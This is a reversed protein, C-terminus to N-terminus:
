GSLGPLNLDLGGTLETVARQMLNQAKGIAVNTASAILEEVMERDADHGEGALAALMAPDIEVRQVKLKGSMTVRVAGGGSEGEVTKSEMEAKIAEMKEKIEAPNGLAGMMGKLQKLQDM